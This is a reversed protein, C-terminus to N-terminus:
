VEVILRELGHFFPLARWELKQEAMRMSPYRELIARMALQGELRALPAGICIHAGGGFSVHSIHKRTIDFEHPREYVSPDRNAAALMANISDRNELPCGGVVRAEPLVRATGMVPPHLRLVEEVAMPWLSPDAMLRATQEPHTLFLWIGNGILDTTTLNGGILLSMLNTTMEQRTVPAGEAILAVLDSILDDEPARTRRDMLESFYANLAEGAKQMRETQEPSRFPNLSLIAGESWTRFDDLRTEEVGLIRAIAWVPIPIAFDALIDFSNRGDLGALTQEIVSQVHPKVAAVRKYFAKQLPLRVRAHDPDDMFLISSNQPAGTEVPMTEALARAVVAEPRANRPHRLMSRDNVVARTDEYRTLIIHGLEPDRYVPCASRLQDLREHPADRYAPDYETLEIGKPLGTQREASM